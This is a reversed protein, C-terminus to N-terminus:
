NKRSNKREKTISTLDELLKDTTQFIYVNLWKNKYNKEMAVLNHGRSILEYAVKKNFIKYTSNKDQKQQTNM